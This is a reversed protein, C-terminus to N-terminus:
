AINAVTGANPIVWVYSNNHSYSADQQCGAVGAGVMAWQLQVTHTGEALSDDSYILTGCNPTSATMSQCRVGGITTGDILYRFAAANPVTNHYGGFTAIAFLTGGKPVYVSVEAGINAFVTDSTTMDRATTRNTNQITANKYLPM